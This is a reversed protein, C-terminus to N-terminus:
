KEKEYRHTPQVFVEEKLEGQLFASKVDLQFVDWGHHAALALILRITDLRAVPAFVETYDVGYQQAYGKAVLRAKHKEVEGKENLKTKFVWKVGIPKTGAPLITLEWTKNKEISDIEAKM